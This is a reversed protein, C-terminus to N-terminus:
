ESFLEQLLKTVGKYFQEVTSAQLREGGSHPDAITPGISICDMEDGYKQVVYSCELGAHIVTAACERGYAEKYVAQAKQLLESDGNPPWYQRM